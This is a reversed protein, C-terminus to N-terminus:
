LCNMRAGVGRMEHLTDPPVWFLEGPGIEFEEDELSFIGHGSNIFVAMYDLLKRRGLQWPKRIDDGSQRVFPRLTLMRGSTLSDPVICNKYVPKEM